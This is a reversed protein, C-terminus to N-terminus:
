RFHWHASSELQVRLMHSDVMFCQPARHQVLERFEPPRVLLQPHKAVLLNEDDIIVKSRLQLEDDVPDFSARDDYSLATDLSCGVGLISDEFAEFQGGCQIIALPKQGGCRRLFRWGGKVIHFLAFNTWQLMRYQVIEGVKDVKGGSHFGGYKVRGSGRRGSIEEIDVRPVGEFGIWRSCLRVSVGVLSDRKGMHPIDQIHLEVQAMGHCSLHKQVM